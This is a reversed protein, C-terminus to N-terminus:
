REGTHEDHGAPADATGDGPGCDRWLAHGFDSLTVVFRQLRPYMHLQTRVRQMTHRVLTDAQLWEYQEALAHDEPGIELLGMQLLTSMYHPVHDRLLVGADRGLTSANALVVVRARGAPFRAAVVHGLPARGRDALLALMAAQDPVLRSLIQQYLRAKALAPDAGRADVLLQAMQDRAAALDAGEHGAVDGAPDDLADLRQKLELLAWQEVDEFRRRAGDAMQLEGAARAAHRLLRVTRPPRPKDDTVM